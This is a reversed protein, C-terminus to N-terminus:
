GVTAPSMKPRPETLPRAAVRTRGRSRRGKVVRRCVWVFCCPALFGSDCRAIPRLLGAPLAGVAREILSPAQPRPDNKGSGLDGCLVVGAEAWVAPHPRGVRQGAHNWAVGEKKVGYTEVDTPDLDITPRMAILEARREESVLAFWRRVLLANAREIGTFVVADFRKASGIFTSSAPVESVARLPRGANDARQFDLDVM